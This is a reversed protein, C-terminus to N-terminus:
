MNSRARLLPSRLFDGVTLSTAVKITEFWEKLLKLLLDLGADSLSARKFQLCLDPGTAPENDASLLSVDRLHALYKCVGLATSVRAKSHDEVVAGFTIHEHARKLPRQMLILRASPNGIRDGAGKERVM